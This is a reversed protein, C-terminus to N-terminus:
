DVIELGSDDKNRLNSERVSLKKDNNLLVVYRDSDELYTVITGQLNNYEEKKLNHLIVQNGTEYKTQCDEITSKTETLDPPQNPVNSGAAGLVNMMNSIMNPDNLMKQMEPNEMMSEMSKIMEPNKFMEAMGGLM